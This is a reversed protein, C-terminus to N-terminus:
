LGLALYLDQVLLAHVGDHEWFDELLVGILCCLRAADLRMESLTHAETLWLLCSSQAGSTFLDIENM